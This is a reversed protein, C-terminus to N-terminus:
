FSLNLKIWWNSAAFVLSTNAINDLLNHFIEDWKGYLHGSSKIWLSTIVQNFDLILELEKTCKFADGIVNMLNLDGFSSM